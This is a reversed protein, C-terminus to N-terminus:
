QPHLTSRRTFSLINVNIEKGTKTPDIFGAVVRDFRLALAIELDETVTWSDQVYFGLTDYEFSDSVYATSQSNTDSLLEESRKDVVFTLLHDYNIAWNFYADLYTIEDKAAYLFVKMSPTRVTNITHM